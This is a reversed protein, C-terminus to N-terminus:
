QNAVQKQHEQWTEPLESGFGRLDTKFMSYYHQAVESANRLEEKLEKVRNLLFDCNENTTVGAKPKKCEPICYNNM